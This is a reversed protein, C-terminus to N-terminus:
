TNICYVGGTELAYMAALRRPNSSQVISNGKCTASSVVIIRYDNPFITDNANAMDCEGDVIGGSSCPGINYLTYHEGDPDEFSEKLYDRYFESWSAAAPPNVTSSADDWTIIGPNEGVGPLAGRNKQQFTKVESIFHILDERRKTDRQSARLWPLAIFIMLFILGAIAITLAVEIITFGTKAEGKKM